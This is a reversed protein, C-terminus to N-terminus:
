RPDIVFTLAMMWLSFYETAYQDNCCTQMDDYKRLIPSFAQSVAPGIPSYNSLISDSLLLCFLCSIMCVMGVTLHQQNGDMKRRTQNPHVSTSVCALHLECRFDALTFHLLFGHLCVARLVLYIVLWLTRNLCTIGPHHRWLWDSLPVIQARNVILFGLLSHYSKELDIVVLLARMIFFKDTPRFTHRM